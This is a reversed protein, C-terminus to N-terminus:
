TNRRKLTETYRDVAKWDVSIGMDSPVPYKNKPIKDNTSNAWSDGAPTRQESHRIPPLNPYKKALDLLLSAYGQRQHVPNTDVGGIDGEPMIRLKSLLEGTKSDTAILEYFSGPRQNRILDVEVEGRKYREFAINSTADTVRGQQTPVNVLRSPLPPAVPTTQKTPMVPTPVNVLTGGMVPLIPTKTKGVALDPKPPTVLRYPGVPNPTAYSLIARANDKAAV